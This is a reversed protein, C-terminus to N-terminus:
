QMMAICRFPENGGITKGLDNAGMSLLGNALFKKGVGLFNERNGFFDERGGFPENASITEKM